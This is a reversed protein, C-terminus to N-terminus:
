RSEGICLLAGNVTSLYLRGDAIAMGDYVPADDLKLETKKAGDAAALAMLVGGRKGEYTAWPKKPDLADPTGACLLTPGGVAMATVRISVPLSWRPKKPRAWKTTNLKDKRGPKPPPASKRDAAV